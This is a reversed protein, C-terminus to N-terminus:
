EDDRLENVLELTIPKAGPKRELLLVGNRMRPAKKPALAQRMLDSVIKGTSVRKQIALQRAVGLVDEDLDLTTRM